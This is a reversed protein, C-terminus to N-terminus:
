LLNIYIKKPKPKPNNEKKLEIKIPKVNLKEKGPVSSNFIHSKNMKNYIERSINSM